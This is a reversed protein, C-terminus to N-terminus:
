GGSDNDDMSSANSLRVDDRSLSPNAHGPPAPSELQAAAAQQVPVAAASVQERLRALEQRLRQNENQIQEFQAQVQQRIQQQCIREQRLYGESYGMKYWDNVAHAPTAAGWLALAVFGPILRLLVVSLPQRNM